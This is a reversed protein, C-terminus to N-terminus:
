LQRIVLRERYTQMALDLPTLKIGADIHSDRAFSAHWAPGAGVSLARALATLVPCIDPYAQLDASIGLRSIADADLHDVADKLAIKGPRKEHAASITRQLLARASVPGTTSRSMDAMDIGALASAAGIEFEGFPKNLLRSWGGVHWSLMEVKEELNVVKALLPRVVACVQNALTKTNDLSEESVQKLLNIAPALDPSNVLNTLETAHKSAAPSKISNPDGASLNNVSKAQRELAKGMLEPLDPRVTASRIGVVSASLVGLMAYVKGDEAAAELLGAALVAAERANDVM